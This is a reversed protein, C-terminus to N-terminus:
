EDEIERIQKVLSYWGCKNKNFQYFQKTIKGLSTHDNDIIIQSVDNSKYNRQGRETTVKFGSANLAEVIENLNGKEIYLVQVIEIDSSQGIDRYKESQDIITNIEDRLEILKQRNVGNIKLRLETIKSTNISIHVNEADHIKSLKM